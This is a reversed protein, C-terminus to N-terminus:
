QLPDFNKPAALITTRGKKAADVTAAATKALAPDSGNSRVGKVLLVKQKLRDSNLEPETLLFAGLSKPKDLLCGIVLTQNPLIKVPITLDRFAEEKQGEKRVIEQAAYPSPSPAAAWDRQIPGHHLEPVIRLLLGASGEQVSSINM